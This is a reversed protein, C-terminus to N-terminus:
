RLIDAHVIIDQSKVTSQTEEAWGREILKPITDKKVCAPSGDYKQILFLNEKCQIEDISIGLKFQKLPSKQQSLPIIEKFIGESNGACRGICHDDSEFNTLHGSPELGISFVSSSEIDADSLSITYVGVDFEELDLYFECSGEDPISIVRNNFVDNGNSDVVDISASQNPDGAIFVLAKANKYSPYNVQYPDVVLNAKAAAGVGVFAVNQTESSQSKVFITWTGKMANDPLPIDITAKGSSNTKIIDSFVEINKPNKAIIELNDNHLSDIRITIREGQEFRENVPNLHIRSDSYTCPEL